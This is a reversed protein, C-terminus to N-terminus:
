HYLVQRGIYSAHSVQTRSRPWSSGRSSPMAVQERIRVQLIGFVSSGQLSCDMPDYLTVCSQLSKACAHVNSYLKYEQINIKKEEM